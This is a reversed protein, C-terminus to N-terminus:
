MAANEWVRAMSSGSTGRACVSSALVTSNQGASVCHVSLKQSGALDLPTWSPTHEDM